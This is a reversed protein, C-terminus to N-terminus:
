AQKISVTPQTGPAGMEVNGVAFIPTAGTAGTPGTAGNMGPIGQPGQPGTPGTVGTVGIIGQPGTPVIQFVCVPKCHQDQEIKKLAKEYTNM